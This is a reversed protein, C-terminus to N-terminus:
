KAEAQAHIQAIQRGQEVGARVVGAGIAVMAM